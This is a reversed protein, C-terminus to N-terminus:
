RKRRNIAEAKDSFSIKNKFPPYVFSFQTKGGGNSIAFDGISIIDMGILIDGGPIDNVSFRIDVLVVGNILQISALVIDAECSKNVGHVMRSDFPKLDLTKAIKHSICSHSAGTDWICKAVIGNTNKQFSPQYVMADTVLVNPIGKFTIDFANHNENNHKM